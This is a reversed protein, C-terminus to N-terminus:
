RAGGRTAPAVGVRDEHELAAADVVDARVLLQEVAAVDIAPEPVLLVPMELGPGIAHAQEAEGSRRATVGRRVLQDPQKLGFGRLDELAGSGARRARQREIHEGAKHDRQESTASNM